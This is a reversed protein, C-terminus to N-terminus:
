FKFLNSFSPFVSTFYVTSSSCILPYVESTVSFALFSKVIVFLFISDSFTFTETSFFHTPFARFSISTFSKAFPFSTSLTLNFSAFEHFCVKLLKGFTSSFLLSITYM